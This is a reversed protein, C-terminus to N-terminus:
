ILLNVNVWTLRWHYVYTPTKWLQSLTVRKTLVIVTLMVLVVPKHISYLLILLHSHPVHSHLLDGVRVTLVRLICQIYKYM